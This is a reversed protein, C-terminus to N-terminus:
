YTFSDANIALWKLFFSSAIAHVIIAVAVFKLIDIFSYSYKASYAKRTSLRNECM